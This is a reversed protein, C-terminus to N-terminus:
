RFSTELPKAMGVLVKRVGNFPERGHSFRLNDLLLLDNRKWDFKIQLRRYTNRITDLVEHDIKSGDGFFANRPLQEESYNALIADRLQEDLASYHFLHAQNFWVKKGTIPHVQVAPLTQSTRLGNDDDWNYEIGNEKCFQEVDYKKTSGFVKAWPLDIDNYNRVYTVGKAEFEARLESPLAEYVLQSDTIPTQGGEKSPVMCYFGIVQPFRNSYANENHQEIISASNYDTATYVNHKLETRPTSRYCYPLLEAQWIKELVNALLTPSHLRAGRILVGGYQAHLANINQLNESLWDPFKVKSESVNLIAISDKVSGSLSLESM